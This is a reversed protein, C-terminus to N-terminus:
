HVRVPGFRRAAMRREAGALNLGLGVHVVRVVLGPIPDPNASREPDNDVVIVEDPVRSGERLSRLLANLMESRRFTPIVVAVTRGTQGARNTSKALAM